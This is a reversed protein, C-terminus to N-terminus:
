HHSRNRTKFPSVRLSVSNGLVVKNNKNEREEGGIEHFHSSAERQSQSQLPKSQYSAINIYKSKIDVCMKQNKHGIDEDGRKEKERERFVASGM